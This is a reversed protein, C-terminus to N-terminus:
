LKAEEDKALRALDDAYRERLQPILLMLREGLFESAELFSM